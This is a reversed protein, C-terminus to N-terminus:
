EDPRDHLLEKTIDAMIEVAKRHNARCLLNYISKGARLFGLNDHLLNGELGQVPLEGVGLSKLLHKFAIYGQPTGVLTAMARIAMAEEAAERSQVQEENIM